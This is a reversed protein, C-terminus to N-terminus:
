ANAAEKPRNLEPKLAQSSDRSRLHRVVWRASLRLLQDLAQAVHERTPLDPPSKSADEM